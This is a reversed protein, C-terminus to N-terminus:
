LPISKKLLMSVAMWYGALQALIGDGTQGEIVVAATLGIVAWAGNIAEIQRQRKFKEKTKLMEMQEAALRKAELPDVMVVKDGPTRKGSSVTSEAFVRFSRSSPGRAVSCAYNKTKWQCSLLSASTPLRDSHFLPISSSSALYRHCGAEWAFSGM